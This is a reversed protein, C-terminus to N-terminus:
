NRTGTSNQNLNVEPRPYTERGPTSWCGKVPRRHDEWFWRRCCRPMIPFTHPTSRPTSLIRRVRGTGTASPTFWVRLFSIFLADSVRKMVTCTQIDSHISARKQWMRFLYIMMVKFTLIIIM